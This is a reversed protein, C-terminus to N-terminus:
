CVSSDPWTYICISSNSRICVCNTYIYKSWDLRWLNTFISLFNTSTQSTTEYEWYFVTILQCPNLVIQNYYYWITLNILITLWNCIKLFFKLSIEGLWEDWQIFNWLKKGNEKVNRLPFFWPRIFSFSIKNNFQVEFRLFYM